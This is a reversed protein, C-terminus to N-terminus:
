ADTDTTNEDEEEAQETDNDTDTDSDTDSDNDSDTDAPEEVKPPFAKNEFLYDMQETTYGLALGLANVVEDGRYYSSAYDFKILAPTNDKLMTKIDEPTIGKDQYLALLVDAKTLNLLNLRQREKETQEQLYEEDTKAVVNGDSIKYKDPNEKILDGTSKDVLYFGEQEGITDIPLVNLKDDVKYFNKRYDPKLTWEEILVDTIKEQEEYSIIEGTEEDYVPIQETTTQQETHSSYVPIENEEYEPVLKLTSYAPLLPVNYGLRKTAQKDIEAEEKYLYEKTNKDYHHVYIKAPELPTLPIEEIIEEM